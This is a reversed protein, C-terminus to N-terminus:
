ASSRRCASIARRIEPVSRLLRRAFGRAWPRGDSSPWRGDAAGRQRAGTTMAKFWRVGERLRAPDPAAPVRPDRRMRVVLQLAHPEIALALLELDRERHPLQHAYHRVVLGYATLRGDADRLPLEPATLVLGVEYHDLSAYRPTALGPAASLHHRPRM